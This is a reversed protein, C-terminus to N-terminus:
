RFNDLNARFDNSISASNTRNHFNSGYVSDGIINPRGRIDRDDGSSSDMTLNNNERIHSIVNPNQPTFYRSTTFDDLINPKQNFRRLSGYLHNDLNEMYGTSPPVPDGFLSANQNDYYSQSATPTVGVGAATTTISTTPPPPYYYDFRSRLMPSQASRM